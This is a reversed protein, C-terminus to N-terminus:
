FIEHVNKYYKVYGAGFNIEQDFEQRLQMDLTNAYCARPGNM